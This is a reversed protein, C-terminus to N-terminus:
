LFFYFFVMILSYCFVAIGIKRKSSREVKLRESIPKEDLERAEKGIEWGISM